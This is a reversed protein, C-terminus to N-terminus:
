AVNKTISKWNNLHWIRIIHIINKGEKTETFVDFLGLSSPNISDRLINIIKLQVEDINEVGCVTGDNEVGVYLHGGSPSNLFGIIDQYHRFIRAQIWYQSNRVHEVHRCILVFYDGKFIKYIPNHLANTFMYM